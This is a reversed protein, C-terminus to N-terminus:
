VRYGSDSLLQLLVRIGETSKPIAPLYSIMSMSSFPTAERPFGALGGALTEGFLAPSNKFEQPLHTWTLQMQRGTDPKTWEFAFLPQTPPDLLPLLLFGKLRSLYVLQCLRPDLQPPHVPEPGGLTLSSSTLVRRRAEQSALIPHELTIPM